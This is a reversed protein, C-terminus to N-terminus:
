FCSSQCSRRRSYNDNSFPTLFALLGLYARLFAWFLSRHIRSSGFSFHIFVKGHFERTPKLDYQYFSLPKFHYASSLGCWWVPLIRSFPWFDYHTPLNKHDLGDAPLTFIRGKAVSQTVFRHFTFVKQKIYLRALM